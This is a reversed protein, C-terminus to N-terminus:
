KRKAKNEEGAYAFMAATGVFLYIITLALIGGTSNNLFSATAKGLEPHGDLILAILLHYAYCTSVGAPWTWLFCKFSGTM